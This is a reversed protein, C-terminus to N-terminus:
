YSNDHVIDGIAIGEFTHLLPDIIHLVLPSFPDNNSKKGVFNVKLVLIDVFAFPFFKSFLIVNEEFFDAGLRSDVDM